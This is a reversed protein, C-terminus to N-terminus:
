LLTCVTEFMIKLTGDIAGNENSDRGVEARKKVLFLHARSNPRGRSPSHQAITCTKLLTPNHRRTARLFSIWRLPKLIPFVPKRFLHLLLSQCLVFAFNKLYFLIITIPNNPM